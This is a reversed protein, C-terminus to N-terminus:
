MSNILDVLQGMGAMGSKAFMADFGAEKAQDKYEDLSGTHLIIKPHLPNIQKLERCVEMGDKGPMTTDLLVVDPDFSKVKEIAELGDEAFDLEFGSKSLFMKLLSRVTNEDDVVLVKKSM